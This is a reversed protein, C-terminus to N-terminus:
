NITQGSKQCLLSFIGGPDINQILQGPFIVPQVDFLGKGVALLGEERFNWGPPTKTRPPQPLCRERLHRPKSRPLSPNRHQAVRCLTDARSRRISRIRHRTSCHRRPSPKFYLAFCLFKATCGVRKM